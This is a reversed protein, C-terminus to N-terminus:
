SNTLKTGPLVVFPRWAEPFSTLARTCTNNIVGAHRNPTSGSISNNRPFQLIRCREGALFNSQPTPTQGVNPSM